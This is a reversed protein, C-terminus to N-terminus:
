IALEYVKKKGLPTTVVATCQLKSPVPLKIDFPGERDTAQPCEELLQTQEGISMLGIGTDVALNATSLKETEITISLLLVLITLTGILFSRFYKKSLDRGM